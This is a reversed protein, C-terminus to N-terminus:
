GAADVRRLESWLEDVPQQFCGPRRPAPPSGLYLTGARRSTELGCDSELPGGPLVLSGDRDLPRLGVGDRSNRTEADFVLALAPRDRWVVASLPRTGLRPSHLSAILWGNRSSDLPTRRRHHACANRPSSAAPGQRWRRRASRSDPRRVRSLVVSMAVLAPRGEPFSPRGHQQTSAGRSGPSPQPVGGRARNPM